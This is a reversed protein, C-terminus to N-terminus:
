YQHPDLLDRLGDGTLNIGLTTVFIAIGPFTALWWHTLMYTRGEGLMGGWSPTPPQVGLGLFSLISEMLIMRAVELSSTVIITNLTNPLVHRIIIRLSSFGMARAATVFELAKLQATEARVVRTYIPWGTIGLVIVMNRFSPGMVAVATLALLMFPFAMMVNVLSTIVSDLKGGYYGGLLGLLVGIVVSIVVSVAGTALSIQSGYIIRALIDRGVPDTGLLHAASGGKMWVPPKLRTTVDQEYPDHPSVLAAGVALGTMALVILLGAVGARYKWIKRWIV